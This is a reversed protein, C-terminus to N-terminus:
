RILIWGRERLFCFTASVEGRAGLDPFDVDLLPMGNTRILKALRGSPSLVLQCEAFAAMPAITAGDLDDDFSIADLAEEISQMYQAAQIERAKEFCFSELAREDRATLMNWFHLYQLYLDNKVELSPYIIESTEWMWPGFPVNLDLNGEAFLEAGRSVCPISPTVSAGHRISYRGHEVLLRWVIVDDPLGSGLRRILEITFSYGVTASASSEAVDGLLVSVTNRGSILWPNAPLALQLNTRKERLSLIVFENVDLRKVPLQSTIRFSYLPGM